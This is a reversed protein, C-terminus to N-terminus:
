SENFDGMNIVLYPLILHKITVTYYIIMYCLYTGYWECYPLNLDCQFREYLFGICPLIIVTYYIVMHCLYGGYWEYYPLNLDCQFIGYLLKDRTINFTIHSSHLINGSSM